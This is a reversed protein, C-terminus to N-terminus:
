ESFAEKENWSVVFWLAACMCAAQAVSEVPTTGLPAVLVVSCFTFVAMSAGEGFSTLFRIPIDTPDSRVFAARAATWCAFATALFESMDGSRAFVGIGESFIRVGAVCSFATACAGFLFAANRNM